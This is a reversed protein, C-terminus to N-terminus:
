SRLAAMLVKCLERGEKGLAVMEEWHGELVGALQQRPLARLRDM